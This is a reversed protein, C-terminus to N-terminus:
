SPYLRKLKVRANPMAGHKGPASKVACPRAILYRVRWANTRSCPSNLFVTVLSHMLVGETAPVEFASEAHIDVGQWILEYKQYHEVFLGYATVYDGHRAPRHGRHEPGVVGEGHDARWSWIDDLIVHDSNM